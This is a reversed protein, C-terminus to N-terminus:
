SHHLSHKSCARQTTQATNQPYLKKDGIQNIQRKVINRDMAAAM